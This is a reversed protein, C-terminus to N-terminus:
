TSLYFDRDYIDVDVQNLVQNRVQGSVFVKSVQRGQLLENKM